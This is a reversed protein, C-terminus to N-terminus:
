SDRRSTSSAAIVDSCLQAIRALPPRAREPTAARDKVSEEAEEFALRIGTAAKADRQTLAFDVLNYYRWIAELLKRAAAARAPPAPVPDALHRDAEV